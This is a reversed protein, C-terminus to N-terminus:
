VGGSIFAPEIVHGEDLQWHSGGFLKTRLKLWTNSITTKFRKFLRKLREM